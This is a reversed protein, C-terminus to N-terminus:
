PNSRGVWTPTGPEPRPQANANDGKAEPNVSHDRHRRPRRGHRRLDDHGRQCRRGWPPLLALGQHGPAQQALWAQLTRPSAPRPCSHRPCSSSTPSPRCAPRWPRSRPLARPWPQRRYRSSAWARPQPSAGQALWAPLWSPPEISSKSLWTPVVLPPPPPSSGLGLLGAAAASGAREWLSMTLAIFATCGLTFSHKLWYLTGPMAFMLMETDLPPRIAEALTVPLNAPVGLPVQTSAAALVAFNGGQSAM